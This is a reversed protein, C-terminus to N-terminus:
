IVPNSGRYDLPTWLAVEGLDSTIGPILSVRWIINGGRIIDVTKSPDLPPANPVCAGEQGIEKM